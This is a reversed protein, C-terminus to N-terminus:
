RSPWPRKARPERIIESMLIAQALNLSQPAARRTPAVKANESPRNIREGQIEGADRQDELDVELDVELGTDFGSVTAFADSRDELMDELTVQYPDINEPGILNRRQKANEQARKKLVSSIIAVVVYIILGISGKM